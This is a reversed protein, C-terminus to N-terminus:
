KPKLEVRNSLGLILITNYIVQEFMDNHQASSKMGPSMNIEMLYVKLNIDIIFDFKLLEFHGPNQNFRLLKTYRIIYSLKSLTISVIADDIQEWLQVVDHGQSLLYHNLADLASFNNHKFSTINPTYDVSPVYKNVNEADFPLYPESCFRLLIDKDYKYIRLPEVSTILM